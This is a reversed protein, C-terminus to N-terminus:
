LDGSNTQQHIYTQNRGGEKAKYLAQDAITILEELKQMHDQRAAVGLSVSLCLGGASTAYSCAAEKRLKEAVKYADDLNIEPLLLCFEEGGYRCLIDALRINDKCRKAIEVLVEDGVDHGHTDNIIKFYDLDFMILSMNRNYRCAQEWSQNAKQFFGRRNLLGTLSDTIALATVKANLKELLLNKHTLERQITILENNMKTFNELIQNDPNALPNEQKKILYRLKNTQTNNIEMLYRILAMMEMSIQSGLVVIRNDILTASLQFISIENEDDILFEWNCVLKEEKVLSLFELVRFYNDRKFLEGLKHNEKITPFATDNHVVEKIIGSEDCVIVFGVSSQIFDQM